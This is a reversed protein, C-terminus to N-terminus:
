EITEITEQLILRIHITMIEKYTDSLNTSSVLSINM